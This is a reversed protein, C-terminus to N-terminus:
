RLSALLLKISKERRNLESTINRAERRSAVTAVKNIVHGNNDRLVEGGRWVEWAVISGAVNTVPIYRYM